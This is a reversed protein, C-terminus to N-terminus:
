YGLEALADEMSMGGDTAEEAGSNAETDNPIPDTAVDPLDSVIPDIIVESFPTEEPVSDFNEFDQPLPNDEPIVAEPIEVEDPIPKEVPLEAQGANGDNPVYEFDQPIEQPVELDAPTEPAVAESFLDSLRSKLDEFAGHVDGLELPFDAIADSIDDRGLHDAIVWIMEATADIAELKSEMEDLKATLGNEVFSEMKHSLASEIDDSFGADTLRDLLGSMADPDSEFADNFVDFLKDFMGTTSEDDPNRLTDTIADSFADMLDAQDITDKNPELFDEKFSFTSDSDGHIEKSIAEKIDDLTPPEAAEEEAASIIAADDQTPTIASGDGTAPDQELPPVEQEQGVFGEPSELTQENVAQAETLAEDQLPSEIEQIVEDAVGIQEAFDHAEVIADKKDEVNGDFSAGNLKNNIDIINSCESKLGEIRDSLDKAEAKAQELETKFELDGTTKAAMELDPIKNELENIRSDLKELETENGTYRDALANQYKEITADLQKESAAELRDRLSDVDQTKVSEVAKESKEGKAVATETDGRLASIESNGLKLEGAHKELYEAKREFDEGHMEVKYDNFEEKGTSGAPGSEKQGVDSKDSDQSAPDTGAKQEVPDAGAEQGVGTETNGPVQEKGTANEPNGATQEQGTAAETKSKEAIVEAAIKKDLDDYAKFVANPTNDIPELGRGTIGNEIRVLTDFKEDVSTKDDIKGYNDLSTSVEKLQQTKANIEADVVDRVGKTEQIKAEIGSREEPSVTALRSELTEIRRDYSELKTQLEAMRNEVGVKIKGLYEAHKEINGTRSDVYVEKASKVFDAKLEELTVGRKEAEAEFSQANRGSFVDLERFNTTVAIENTIQLPTARGAPDVLYRNGYSEVLRMQPVTISTENGKKDVRPSGDKDLAQVSDIGQSQTWVTVSKAPTGNHFPHRGERTMDFGAYRGAEPNDARAAKAADANIPEKSFGSQEVSSSPKSSEATTATESSKPSEVPTTVAGASSPVQEKTAAEQGSKGQEVKSEQGTLTDGQGVQAASSQAAEGKDTASESSGAGEGQGTSTESNGTRSEEQGTASEPNQKTDETGVASESKDDAIIKDIDAITKEEDASLVELREIGREAVDGGSAAAVSRYKSELDADKSAEVGKAADYGKITADIRGIQQEAREIGAKVYSRGVDIQDRDGQLQEIPKGEQKAAEIRQDLAEIKKDYTDLKSRLEGLKSELATKTKELFPRHAEMDSLRTKIYDAKANAILDSKLEEVSERRKDAEIEYTKANRGSFVDFEPFDTRIAAKENTIEIPTAHGSPDVLYRNGHDEVLRMSPVATYHAEVEIKNNGDVYFTKGNEHVVDTVRVTKFSGDSNEVRYSYVQDEKENYTPIAEISQREWVTVSKDPVGGHYPHRGERAMDFGAYKGAEPNDVRASKVTEANIPDKSFGNQEVGSKPESKGDVPDSSPNTQDVSKAGEENGEKAVDKSEEDVKAPFLKDFIAHLGVEIVSEILNTSMLRRFDMAVAAGSVVKGNAGPLGTRYATLDYELKSSIVFFNNFNYKDSAEEYSVKAKDYQIKNDLMDERSIQNDESKTPDKWNAAYKLAESIKDADGNYESYVRDYGERMKDEDHDFIVDLRDRDEGSIDDFNVSGRDTDNARTPEGASAETGTDTGTDVTETPLHELFIREWHEPDEKRAAEIDANMRDTDGNYASEIAERIDPAYKELTQLISEYDANTPQPDNSIPVLSELESVPSAVEMNGDSESSSLKEVFAEMPNEPKASKADAIAERFGDPDNRYAELVDRQVSDPQGKLEEVFSRVEDDTIQPTVSGTGAVREEMEQTAQPM